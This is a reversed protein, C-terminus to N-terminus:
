LLFAILPMAKDDRILGEKGDLVLKWVNLDKRVLYRPPDPAQGAPGAPVPVPKPRWLKSDVIAFPISGILREIFRAQKVAVELIASFNSVSRAKGESARKLRRVAGANSLSRKM